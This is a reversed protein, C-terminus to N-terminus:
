LKLKSLIFWRRLMLDETEFYCVIKVQGSIGYM